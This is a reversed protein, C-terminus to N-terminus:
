FSDTALQSIETNTLARDYFLLDDIIGNWYNGYLGGIKINENEWSNGENFTRTDTQNGDIYLTWTINNEVKLIFHFWENPTSNYPTLSNHLGTTPSNYRFFTGSNGKYIEFDYITGNGKTLIPGNDNNPNNIWGSITFTALGNVLSKDIEVQGSNFQLAKNSENNRNSALNVGGTITGIFNGLIDNAQNNTTSDFLYGAKLGFMPFDLDNINVTIIADKEITGNTARITTSLQTNTEYDFPFEENVFLKGNNDIYFAGNVSENILAFTFTQNQESSIIIQGIETQNKAGEDVSFTQNNFTFDYSTSSEDDSSCSIFIFLLLFAINLNKM